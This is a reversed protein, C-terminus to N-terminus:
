DGQAACALARGRRCGALPIRAETKCRHLLRRKPCAFMAVLAAPLQLCFRASRSVALCLREDRHSFFFLLFSFFSLSFFLKRVQGCNALRKAELQAASAVRPLLGATLDRWSRVSDLVSEM